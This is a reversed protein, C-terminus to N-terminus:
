ILAGSSCKERLKSQPSLTFKTHCHHYSFDSRARQFCSHNWGAGILTDASVVDLHLAGAVCWSGGTTSFNTGIRLLSVM